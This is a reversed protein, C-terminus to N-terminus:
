LNRYVDKRHRVRTVTIMRSALDVEFLIRYEGSDIRYIGRQGQIPKIDQPREGANFAALLRDIAREIQESIKPPLGVVDKRASRTFVLQYSDPEM